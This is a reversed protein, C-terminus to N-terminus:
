CSWPGPQWPGPARSAPITSPGPGSCEPLRNPGYQPHGQGVDIGVWKGGAKEEQARVAGQPRLPGERLAQVRAPLVHQTGM